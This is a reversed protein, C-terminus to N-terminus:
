GGTHVIPVQYAHTDSGDLVERVKRELAEATFPKQLFSGGRWPGRHGANAGDTSGSMYLVRAALRTLSDLGSMEVFTAGEAVRGPSAPGRPRRAAGLGPM